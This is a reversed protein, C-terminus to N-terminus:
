DRRRQELSNLRWDYEIWEIQPPTAARLQRALAPVYQAAFALGSGAVQAFDDGYWDYLRTLHVVQQEPDLRLWRESAHVEKAQDELQADLRDGRYAEGRLPPCGVAACVLAFHIRPERFRARVEEHEIQDLSLTRGDLRWRRDTWRKAEPIDKISGLPFHDLVLRLTFANYANILLALKEDRGLAEFPADAYRRITEDLQEPEQALARYDVWGGPSVCRALVADLPGHDVRPGDPAPEHAERMVVKPPGFAAVLRHREISALAALAALLVAFSCLAVTGASSPRRRGAGDPDAATKREVAPRGKVQSALQKRALRALVVTVVVTAVLGAILLGWEWPSRERARAGVGFGQAGLTGLYVYLFTGPLMGIASAVVATWFRVGTLGLLYNLVSFPLLPSLRLLLVTTFGANTIAADLAAFRRHREALREVAGRALHRAILFALAAALTSGVWVVATGLGLGFMAGAALTMPAGPVLALALLVYAATFLALGLFGLQELWTRLAGVIRDMPLTLGMAVVSAVIFGVAVWRVAVQRRGAGRSREARPQRDRTAAGGARDTDNASRTTM